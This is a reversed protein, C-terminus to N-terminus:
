KLVCLNRHNLNFIIHNGIGYHFGVNLMSQLGSVSASLLLQDDAYMVCGLFKGNVYCGECNTEFEIILDDVYINFLWPSLVGGQQVGYKVSFMYSTLGNWRVKAYLKDYWGCLVAILCCPVNREVLKNFM